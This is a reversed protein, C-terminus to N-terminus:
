HIRNIAATIEITITRRGHCGEDQQQLIGRENFDKRKSKCYEEKNSMRGRAAAITRRGPIVDKRKSSCYDEKKSM